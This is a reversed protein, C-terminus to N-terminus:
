EASNKLLVQLSNTTIAAPHGMYRVINNTDVLLVCPLSQVGADSIFRGDPDLACPFNIKPDSQTVDAESATTVGVVQVKGALARELDNIAPIWKRCSASKPSWVSIITLKGALDPKAGVWNTFDMSPAAQGLQSDDGVADGFGAQSYVAQIRAQRAQEAAKVKRALSAALSKQYNKDDQIQQEEDKEAEKPNYHFEKQLEPSLYKLKVNSVGSDSSFFLDTSNAGFVTVNSYTVSGVTLTDLKVTGARLSIAAGM